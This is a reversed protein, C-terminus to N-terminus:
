SPSFLELGLIVGDKGIDICVGQDIRGVTYAISAPGRRDLSIYGMDCSSDYSSHLEAQVEGGANEQIVKRLEYPCLADLGIVRLGCLTGLEDLVLWVGPLDAVPNERSAATTPAFGILVEDSHCSLTVRM